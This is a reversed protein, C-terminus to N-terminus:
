GRPHGPALGQTLHEVLTAVTAPGRDAAATALRANRPRAGLFDGKDIKM